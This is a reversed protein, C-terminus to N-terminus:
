DVDCKVIKMKQYNGMTTYTRANMRDIYIIGNLHDIEHQLIRAYWGEANITIQRGKEDLADVSVKFARPVSAMFGHLSLCGEYFDAQNKSDIINLKPNIIVHFAIPKRNCIKIDDPTAHNIYNLPDEIVAIQLPIGVQPAALGIGTAHRMTNKMTLILRQTKTSLIENRTLPKAIERLIPDGIKVIPLTKTDTSHKIEAYVSTSFSVLLLISAIIRLM